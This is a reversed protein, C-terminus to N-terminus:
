PELTSENRCTVRILKASVEKICKFADAKTANRKRGFKRLEEIADSIMQRQETGTDFKAQMARFQALCHKLDRSQMKCRRELTKVVPPFEGRRM